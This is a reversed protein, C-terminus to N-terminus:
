FLLMERVLRLKDSCFLGADEMAPAAWGSAHMLAAVQWGVTDSYEPDNLLRAHFGRSDMQTLARESIHDRQERTMSNSLNRKPAHVLFVLGGRERVARVENPYRVDTVVFKDLGWEEQARRLRAFLATVWVDEGYLDRGRETGEEQLWTRVVPPKPGVFVEEYTALGLAVARVKIDEALSVSLFGLPKFYREALLNKGVGSAGALAVVKV